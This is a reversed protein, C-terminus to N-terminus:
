LDSGKRAVSALMTGVVRKRNRMGLIVHRPLQDEEEKKYAGLVIVKYEPADFVSFFVRLNTKGLVNGKLKLEFFEDVEEIRLLKMEEPDDWYRLREAQRVAYAYGVPGLIKMGETRAKPLYGVRYKGSPQVDPLVLDDM